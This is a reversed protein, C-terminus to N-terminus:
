KRLPPLGLRRRLEDPHPIARVDKGDAQTRAFRWECDDITALVRDRPAGGAAVAESLTLGEGDKSEFMNRITIERNIELAVAENVSPELPLFYGEMILTRPPPATLAAVAGLRRCMAERGDPSEDPQNVDGTLEYATKTSRSSVKARSAAAATADLVMSELRAAREVSNATVRFGGRQCKVTGLNHLRGPEAVGVYEIEDDATRTWFTEPAHAVFDDYERLSGIPPEPPAMCAETLRRWVEATAAVKITTECYRYEDGDANQFVTEPQQAFRSLLREAFAPSTGPLVPGDPFLEQTDERLDRPMVGFGGLARLYMSGDPLLEGDPLLRGIVIDLRQVSMSFRRDRQRIEWPNGVISRVRLESGRNVRSVEYMDVPRTLWDDLLEREDPRLLHGRAVMFRRAIGGDFIALDLALMAAHPAGIVCAALRDTVARNQGRQAFTAIMAYLAPTRDTLPHTGSELDKARCCAKYKRGSGCPCPQNRAARETGRAPAKLKDLPHLLPEALADGTGLKLALERARAWNGACLEYEMADRIAPALDPAALMSSGVLMRAEDCRGSGEAARALLLDHVGPPCGDSLEAIGRAWPHGAVAPGAVIEVAEAVLDIVAPVQLGEAPARTGAAMAAICALAMAADDVEMDGCPGLDRHTLLARPIGAREALSEASADDGSRLTSALQRCVKIDTSKGVVRTLM